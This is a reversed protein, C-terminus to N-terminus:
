QHKSSKKNLVSGIVVILRFTFEGMDVWENRVAHCCLFLLKFILLSTAFQM